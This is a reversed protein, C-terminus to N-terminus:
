PLPRTLSVSTDPLSSQVRHEKTWNTMAESSSTSCMRLRSGPTGSMPPRSPGSRGGGDGGRVGSLRGYGSRASSTGTSESSSGESGILWSGEAPDRDVELDRLSRRDGLRWVGEDGRDGVRGRGADKDERPPTTLRRISWQSFLALFCVGPRSSCRSSGPCCVRGSLLDRGELWGVNGRALLLLSPSSSSSM